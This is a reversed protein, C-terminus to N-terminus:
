LYIFLCIFLSIFILLYIFLIYLREREGRELKGQPIAARLAWLLDIELTMNYSNMKSLVLHAFHVFCRLTPALKSTSIDFFHMGNHCSAYKSPLLTFFQRIRLVKPLSWPNHVQNFTLLVHPNQLMDQFSPLRPVYASSRALHREHPLCLVLSMNMLATRLDPRQNGSLPQMKSCWIKLNASIIKHSLHLAKSLHLPFIASRM